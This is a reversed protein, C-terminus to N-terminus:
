ILFYFVRFTNALFHCLRWEWVSPTLIYLPVAVKFFMKATEEFTQHTGVVQDQEEMGLYQEPSIFDHGCLSKHIFTWLLMAQLIWFSSVVCIDRLWYISLLMTYGYLSIGHFLMFIFERYCAVSHVIEFHKNQIFSALTLAYQECLSPPLPFSELTLSSWLCFSGKLNM